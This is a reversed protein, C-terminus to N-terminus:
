KDLPTVQIFQPIREIVIEKPEEFSIMTADIPIKTRSIHIGHLCSKCWIDIYGIRTVKDGVYQFDIRNEGCKPCILKETNPLEKVINLWENFM